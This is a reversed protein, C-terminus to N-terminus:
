AAKDTMISGPFLKWRTRRSFRCLKSFFRSWFPENRFFNSCKSILRGFIKLDFFISFKWRFKWQFNLIKSGSFKWKWMINLPFKSSFFWCKEIEFNKTPQNWFARVKKTIFRKPRSKKWLQTCKWPPCSSLQKRPRDHRIFSRLPVLFYRSNRMETRAQFTCPKKSPKSQRKRENDFYLMKILSINIDPSLIGLTQKDHILSSEYWNKILSFNIYFNNAGALERVRPGSCTNQSPRLSFNHGRSTGFTKPSRFNQFININKFERLSLFVVRNGEWRLM